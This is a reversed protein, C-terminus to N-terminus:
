TGPKDLPALSVLSDMGTESQALVHDQDLMGPEEESAHSANSEMGIPVQLVDVHDQLPTGTKVPQALLVASETGTKVQHADVLLLQPIGFKIQQVPLVPSVTGTELPVFVLSDLAAGSKLTLASSVHDETGTELPVSVNDVSLMLFEEEAALTLAHFDTGFAELPASM